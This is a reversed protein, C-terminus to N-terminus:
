SLLSCSLKMSLPRHILYVQRGHAQCLFLYIKVCRGIKVYSWVGCMTKEYLASLVHLSEKGVNM